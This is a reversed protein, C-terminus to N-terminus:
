NKRWNYVTVSSKTSGDVVVKHNVIEEGWMGKDVGEWDPKCLVKYELEEGQAFKRVVKFVGNSKNVKLAKAPNWSGLKKHNGCIYVCDVDKDTKNEVYFTVCCVQEEM